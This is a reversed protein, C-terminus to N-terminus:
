FDHVPQLSTPHGVDLDALAIDIEDMLLRVSSGGSFEFKLGAGEGAQEAMDVRRLALLNFLADQWMDPWNHRQVASVHRICMGCLRREYVPKGDSSTVGDLPPIEWCFRNAVLIFESKNRNFKMDAGPIIADQLLTSVVAVDDEDRALLRLQKALDHM